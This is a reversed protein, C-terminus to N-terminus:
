DNSISAFDAAPVAAAEKSSRSIHQLRQLSFTAFGCRASSDNRSKKHHARKAMKKEM